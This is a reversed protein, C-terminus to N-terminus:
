KLAEVNRPNDNRISTRGIRLAKKFTIKHSQFFRWVGTRSGPVKNRRMVAVVEDLTLDPQEELLALRAGGVALHERRAAQRLM